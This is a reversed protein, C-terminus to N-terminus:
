FATLLGWIIFTAGGVMAWFTVLNLIQRRREDRDVRARLQDQLFASDAESWDFRRNLPKM